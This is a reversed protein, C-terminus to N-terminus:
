NAPRLNFSQDSYAINTCCLQTTLHGAQERDFYSIYILSFDLVADYSIFSVFLSLFLCYISNERLLHALSLCKKASSPTADTEILM